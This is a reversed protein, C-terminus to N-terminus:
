EQDELWDFEEHAASPIHGDFQKLDVRYGKEFRVLLDEIKYGSVTSTRNNNVTQVKNMPTCFAVSQDYCMLMPKNYYDYHRLYFVWELDNPNNYNGRELVEKLDKARYMSSSLEIPYSFDHQAMTWNYRLVNDVVGQFDPLLQNSNLSYCYTTNKGLRFSFGLCDQDKDLLMSVLNLSFSKVFVNDDVLFLVKDYGDVIDLLDKKFNNEKVFNVNPYEYKLQEYSNDFREDATYLVNIDSPSNNLGYHYFSNLCIDLQTPRNKSFVITVIKNMKDKEVMKKHNKWLGCM